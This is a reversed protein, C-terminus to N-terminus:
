KNEESQQHHDLAARAIDQCEYGLDYGYSPEVGIISQLAARLRENEAKLTPVLAATEELKELEYADIISM